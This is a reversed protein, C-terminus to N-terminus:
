CHLLPGAATHLAVVQLVLIARWKAMGGAFGPVWHCVVCRGAYFLAAGLNRALSGETLQVSAVHVQANTLSAAGVSTGERIIVSTDPVARRLM